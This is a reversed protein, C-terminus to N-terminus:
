AAAETDQYSITVIPPIRLSNHITCGDIVREVAHRLPDAIKPLTVDVSIRAVRPPKDTAADFRASVVLDDVDVGNRRLFRQAFYAVCGALSAAFLETPSPGSDGSEPQDMRVNHGRVRAVLADGDAITVTVTGSAM